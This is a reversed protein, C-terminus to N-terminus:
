PDTTELSTNYKYFYDRQLEKAKDLDIKLKESIFQTM